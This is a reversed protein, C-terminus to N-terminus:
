FGYGLSVGGFPAADELDNMRFMPTFMARFILGGEPAEYRYGIQPVLFRVDNDSTIGIAIGAGIELHHDGRFLVAAVSANVIVLPSCEIYCIPVAGVGVRLALTPLPLYEYNGSL